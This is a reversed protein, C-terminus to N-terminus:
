KYNTTTAQDTRETWACSAKKCSWICRIVVAGSCVAVRQKYSGGHVVVLSGAVMPRRRRIWSGDGEMALNSWLSRNGWNWLVQQVSDWPPPPQVAPSNAISHYRGGDGGRRQWTGHARLIDRFADVSLVGDESQKYVGHTGGGASSM